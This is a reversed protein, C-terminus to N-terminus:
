RSRLASEIEWGADIRHKLISKSVECRPDDAWDAVGKTEGFATLPKARHTNRAQETKTAWRCNDPEYHGDNDKRDLTHLATPRPGMDRYFAVFSKRWEACVSIGRGGYRDYVPSKPNECRQIMTGWIRYEPLQTAIVGGELLRRM